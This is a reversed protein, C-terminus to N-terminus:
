PMYERLQEVCVDFVMAAELERMCKFDSPCERRMCPACEVNNSVIRSRTSWPGTTVPNTSGFLAVLPTDLAAGVHMLGSDNTVLLNLRQIFAMVQPLDTRGALNLARDGLPACIARGTEEEKETGLVAIWTRRGSASSYDLLMRGLKVFNEVPWCKAPGFAAGPNFGILLDDEAVERSTLFERAWRAACPSVRLILRPEGPSGEQLSTEHPRDQDLSEALNIYYFVEHRKRKWAPVPVKHTLLMTRMDTAYGARRPIGALWPTFASDFSNPFILALDFAEQRLMRATGFRSLIGRLGRDVDLPITSHVGPNETFVPLVWPRAAVTIRADPFLEGLRAVAPTTMIADGIWNTSRVLIKKIHKM